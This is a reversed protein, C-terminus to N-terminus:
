LKRYLTSDKVAWNSTHLLSAFLNAKFIIFTLTYLPDWIASTRNCLAYRNLFFYSLHFKFFLSFLATATYILHQAINNEGGLYVTKSYSISESGTECRLLALSMSISLYFEWPGRDKPFCQTHSASHRGAIRHFLVFRMLVHWIVNSCLCILFFDGLNGCRWASM